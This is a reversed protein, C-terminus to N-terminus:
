LRLYGLSELEQTRANYTELICIADACQNRRALFERQGQRLTAADSGPSLLNKKYYEALNADARALEPDACIMQEVSTAARACDIVTDTRAKKVARTPVTAIQSSEAAASGTGITADDENTVPKAYDTEGLLQAATLKAVPWTSSVASFMFVFEPQEVKARLTSGLERICAGDTESAFDGSFAVRQGIKMTSADAFLKTGPDILTRDGMGSLSNNGTEVTIGNDLRIALVGKGESNSDVKAITGIWDTVSRSPLLACIAEDRTAKIGGRQMDNEAARSENQADSAVQIFRAEREPLAVSPSIGTPADATAAQSPSDKVQAVRPPSHRILGWIVLLAVVALAVLAALVASRPIDFSRSVPAARQTELQQPAAALASQCHKCKIAVALIEEGCFPCAKTDSV